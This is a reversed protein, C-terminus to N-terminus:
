SWVLQPLESILEVETPINRIQNQVDAMVQYCYAWVNDRWAVFTNAENQFTVNTSNAYTCATFINDYGKEQAKSDLHSQVAKTLKSKVNAVIKADKPTIDFEMVDGIPTVIKCDYLEHDYDPELIDEVRWGTGEIYPVQQFDHLITLIEGSELIVARKM